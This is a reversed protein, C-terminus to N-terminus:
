QRIIPVQVCNKYEKYTNDKFLSVGTPHAKLWDGITNFNNCGFRSYVPNYISYIQRFKGDVVFGWSILNQHILDENDERFNTTLYKEKTIHTNFLYFTYYLPQNATDYVDRALAKRSM